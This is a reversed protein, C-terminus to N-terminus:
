SGGKVIKSTLLTGLCGVAASAINGAVQSMRQGCIVVALVVIVLALIAKGNDDFM